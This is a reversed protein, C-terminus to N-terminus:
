PASPMIYAEMKMMGMRTIIHDAPIAQKVSLGSMFDTILFTATCGQMMATYMPRPSSRNWAGSAAPYSLRVPIPPTKPLTAATSTVARSLATVEAPPQVVARVMTSIPIIIASTSGDPISSLSAQNMVARRKTMRGPSTNKPHRRAPTSEKRVPIQTSIVPIGAPLM